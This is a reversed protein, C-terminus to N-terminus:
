GTAILASPPPPPRPSFDNGTGLLGLLRERVGFTLALCVEVVVSDVDLAEELVWAMNLNLDDAVAVPGDAMEVFAVARYLTTLLFEDLLRGRRDEVFLRPLFETFGGSRANGFGPVAAGAGDLEEVLVTVEVEELHVSPDLDFV